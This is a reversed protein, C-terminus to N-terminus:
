SISISMSMSMSCTIRIQQATVALKLGFDAMGVKKGKSSWRRPSMKGFWTMMVQTMIAMVM